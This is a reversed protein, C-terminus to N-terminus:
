FLFRDLLWAVTLGSATGLVDWGLDRWSPHGGTYRDAVEKAVGLSLSLLSGALLRPPERASLQAGLAYGGLALTFSAGYHLAKDRGFWPDRAQARAGGAPGLQLAVAVLAALPVLRRDPWRRGTRHGPPTERPSM